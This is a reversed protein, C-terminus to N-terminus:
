RDALYGRSGRDRRQQGARRRAGDGRGGPDRPRPSGGSGGPRGPHGVGEGGRERDRGRRGAGRRHIPRRQPRGGRGRPCVGPRDRARDGPEVGHHGRGAAPAADGDGPRGRWSITRRRRWRGCWTPTSGCYARGRRRSRRASLNGWRKRSVTRTSSGAADQWEVQRESIRVPGSVNFYWGLTDGGPSIWHYVNYPRDAWYYAVTMTGPPLDLTAIRRANSVTYLLVARRPTVEAAECPFVQVSGGLTRKIEVIEM